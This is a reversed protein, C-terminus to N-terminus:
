GIEFHYYDRGCKFGEVWSDRKKRKEKKKRKREIFSEKWKYMGNEVV